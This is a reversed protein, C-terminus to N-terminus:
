PFTSSRLEDRLRDGFVALRAAVDAIRVSINDLYSLAGVERVASARGPFLMKMTGSRTAWESLESRPETGQLGGRCSFREVLKRLRRNSYIGSTVEVERAQCDEVPLLTGRMAAFRDLEAFMASTEDARSRRVPRDIMPKARLRSPNRNAASACSNRTGAGPPLM